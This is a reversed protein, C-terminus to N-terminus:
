ASSSESQLKRKLRKSLQNKIGSKRFPTPKYGYSITLETGSEIDTKAYFHFLTEGNHNVSKWHVNSEKYNAHNFMMAESLMICSRNDDFSFVYSSLLTNSLVNSDAKNFILLHSVIVLEGKYIFRTAYLSRGKDADFMVRYSPPIMFRGKNTQWFKHSGM